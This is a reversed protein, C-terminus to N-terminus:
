RARRPQRAPGVPRKRFVFGGPPQADGELHLNKGDWTLTLSGFATPLNEISLPKTLWNRPVGAFLVLRDGDEHVLSDRMLLWLEALSWAHPMAVTPTWATRLKPWNGPASAGGEDFAYWGRMQVQDFHRRLTHVATDRNGALLAQHATALAFYRWESPPQPPVTAFRDHAKGSRLPYLRCPWLVSYSGYGAGLDKGFRADYRQLLTDALARWRKAATADGGAEALLAANRLGAVDFAETYEPHYGDCAGPLLRLRRDPPLAPGFGLGERAVWHPEPSTRAYEILAALQRAAPLSRAFFDRDGTLKWHEGAIWLVQGPNDAEPQVRGSFSHAFFHDIARAALDHMGAQDLVLTLYAGDRTFTNYNVVAVDPAGEDLMLALHAPIAAFAENWRPDPTRIAVGGLRGRWFGLAEAFLADPDMARYAALGADRQLSGGTAPNPTSLDLQVEPGRGDWVHGVARRGPLVPAIFGLARTAGPPLDLDFRLAGSADGDPSSASRAEPISGRRASVGVTDEPAVGAASPRVNSVLAPHGDALLADGPGAVELRRVPWGAPGLARLAAYLFLRVPRNSRNVLTVRAAAVFQDPSQRVECVETKVEVAGATWRSWPVLLGGPALGHEVAADPMTPASLKRTERDFVWFSIGYSGVGPSFGGEAEVFTKLADLTDPLGIPIHLRGRPDLSPDRPREHPARCGALALLVLLLVLRPASIVRRFTIGHHSPPCASKVRGGGTVYAKKM